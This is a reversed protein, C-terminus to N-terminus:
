GDNTLSGASKPITQTFRPTCTLGFVRQLLNAASATPFITSKYRSSACFFTVGPIRCVSTSQTM